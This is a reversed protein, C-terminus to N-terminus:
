FGMAMEGERSADAASTAGEGGDGRGGEATRMLVTVVDGAGRVKPAAARKEATELQKQLADKEEQEKDDEGCGRM